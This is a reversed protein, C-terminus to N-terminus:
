VTTVYTSYWAAAVSRAWGFISQHVLFRPWHDCRRFISSLGTVSASASRVVPKRWIRKGSCYNINNKFFIDLLKATESSYVHRLKNSLLRINIVRCVTILYEMSTHSLFYHPSDRTTRLKSMKNKSFFYTSKNFLNIFSVRHDALHVTSM